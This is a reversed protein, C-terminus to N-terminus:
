EMLEGCQFLARRDGSMAPSDRGVGPSRTELPKRESASCAIRNARRGSGLPHRRSARPHQKDFCRVAEGPPPARSRAPPRATTLRSARGRAIAGAPFEDPQTTLPGSQAQRPLDIRGPRVRPQVRPDGANRRREGSKVDADLSGALLWWPQPRGNCFPEPSFDNQGVVRHQAPRVPGAGYRIDPVVASFGVRKRVVSGRVASRDPAPAASPGGRKRPDCCPRRPAHVSM